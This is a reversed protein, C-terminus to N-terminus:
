NVVGYYVRLIRDYFPHTYNLIMFYFNHYYRVKKFADVYPYDELYDPIYGRSVDFSLQIANQRNFFKKYLPDYAYWKGNLQIEVITHESNLHVRRAPFPCEKIFSRSIRYCDGDLQNALSDFYELNFNIRNPLNNKPYMFFLPILVGVYICASSILIYKFYKPLLNSLNFSM